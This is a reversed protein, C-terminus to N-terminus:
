QEYAVVEAENNNSQWLSAVSNAASAQSEESALRGLESSITSRLNKLPEQMNSLHTQAEQHSNNISEIGSNYNDFSAEEAGINKYFESEADLSGHYTDVYTQLSQLITKGHATVTEAAQMTADDLDDQNLGDALSQMNSDFSSVVSKLETLADQRGTLNQQTQSDSNALNALSEDIKADENFATSLKDEALQIDNLATTMQTADTQIASYHDAVSTQSCAGLLLACLAIIGWLKWKKM